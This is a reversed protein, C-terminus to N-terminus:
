KHVKQIMKNGYLMRDWPRLKELCHKYSKKKEWGMVDM